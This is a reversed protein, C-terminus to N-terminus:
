RIFGRYTRSGQEPESNWLDEKGSRAPHLSRYHVHLALLESAVPAPFGKRGGRRDHLLDDFIPDLMRPEDWYRAIRNVIRPYRQATERPAVADPLLKMWAAAAVNLAADYPSPASRRNNWDPQEAKRVGGAMSPPYLRVSNLPRHKM